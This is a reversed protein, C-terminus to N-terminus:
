EYGEIDEIRIFAQQKGDFNVRKGEKYEGWYVRKGVLSEAWKTLAEHDATRAISSVKLVIGETKSDYKSEPMKINEYYEGLQVLIFGPAPTLTPEKANTM